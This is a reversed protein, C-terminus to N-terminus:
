GEELSHPGRLELVSPWWWNSEALYNEPMWHAEEM